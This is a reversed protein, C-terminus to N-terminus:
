YNVTSDPPILFENTQIKVESVKIMNKVMDLLFFFVVKFTNLLKDFLKAHVLCVLGYM